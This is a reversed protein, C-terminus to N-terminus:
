QHAPPTETPTPAPTSEVPAALATKGPCDNLQLIRANFFTNAKDLNWPPNRYLLAEVCFGAKAVQWQSDESSTTYLKGDESRILISYTHMQADTVRNSLVATSETVREVTVIEGKVRKSFVWAYNTVVVIAILGLVLILVLIKLAAKFSKM